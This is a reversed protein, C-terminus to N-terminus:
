GHALQGLSMTPDATARALIAGYDATWRQITGPRFLDNKYCCAGVVGSPTEKLMVSLWSRDIPLVREGERHAFSGVTVGPLKLPRFANQLVFSVQLLSAPDVDGRAVLDAVVSEFPLEQRAYAELVSERVRSLAEQFSLDTHLRTRILTINVLPGIIHETRIHFRNAMATAVCIDNRGTRALLLTKFGALLTMFLSAGQSHGLASLRAVLDNGVNVPEHATDSGLLATGDNTRFLPSAKRLHKRWYSLQRSAEASSCWQRQWRAFDFFQLEPKPLQARRGGAFAVYLESIEELFVAISWGDVIAHHLVLLLVHDDAGLRLLRARFLPACKVDFPICAEREAELAAMKLLLQKARDGISPAMRALDKVVLSPGFDAASVVVAVPQQNSWTFKTRLSDHRRVIEAVSRSFARVNLPGQLRYAFPLNFQPLGPLEREIRLMQEQLISPQQRGGQKVHAIELAPESSPAHGANTIRRALDAITPAEFFVRLPLSVKFALTVRVLVQGALLSHGGLEFFNDFVGIREVKLLSSWIGVLIEETSNRPPIFTHAAVKLQNRAVVLALRDVKGHATLPMRELFIFGSPIMYKPLRERLFDRLEGVEPERRNTGVVFALLRAESDFDSRALVIASQVDPHEALIHGIQELEIRHGRIKVQHDVRGVFELIGDPRWRALDGTRYLRAERRHSFPDRLFSRRTQESDNLYGRGVGAGGVCLEGTVGIPVPQLHADLVYLCTNAIPRGIPM